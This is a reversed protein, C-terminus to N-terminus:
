AGSSCEKSVAQMRDETLVVRKGEQHKALMWALQDLNLHHVQVEGHADKGFVVIRVQDDDLSDPSVTLFLTEDKRMAKRLLGKM